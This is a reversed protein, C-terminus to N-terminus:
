KLVREQRSVHGHQTPVLLSSSPTTKVVELLLSATDPVAHGYGSPNQRNENMAENSRTM